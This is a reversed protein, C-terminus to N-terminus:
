ETMKIFDSAPIKVTFAGLYYAAAQYENFTFYINSDDANFVAFSSLEAPIDSILSEADEVDNEKLQRIIDNKCYAAAKKLWKTGWPADALTVEMKLKMDYNYSFYNHDPHVGGTFAENYYRISVAYDDFSFVSCALTEYFKGQAFSYDYNKSEETRDNFWKTINAEIDKNVKRYITDNFCPYDAKIEYKDTIKKMTKLSYEASYSAIAIFAAFFLILAKKM